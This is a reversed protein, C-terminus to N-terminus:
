ANAPACRFSITDGDAVSNLELAYYKGGTKREGTGFNEYLNQRRKKPRRRRRGSKRKTRERLKDPEEKFRKQRGRRV